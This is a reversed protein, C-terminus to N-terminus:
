GSLREAITTVNPEVLVTGDLLVVTPVRPRGPSLRVLDDYGEEDLNIDIERYPVRLAELVKKVRWCDACFTTSYILVM